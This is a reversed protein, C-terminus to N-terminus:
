DDSTLDSVLLIALLQKETIIIRPKINPLNPLLGTLQCILLATTEIGQM